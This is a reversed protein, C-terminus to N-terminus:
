GSTYRPKNVEVRTATITTTNVVANISVRQGVKLGAFTTPTRLDGLWLYYLTNSATDVWETDGRQWLYPYNTMQITVAIRESGRDVAVITGTFSIIHNPPRAPEQALSTRGGTGVLLVLVLGVMATITLMKKM